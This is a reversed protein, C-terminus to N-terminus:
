IAFDHISPRIPLAEHVKCRQERPTLQFEYNLTSAITVVHFDKADFKKVSKGSISISEFIYKTIGHHGGRAYLTTYTCHVAYM